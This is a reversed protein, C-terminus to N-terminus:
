MLLSLAGSILLTTVVSKMIGAPLLGPVDTASGTFSLGATCGIM